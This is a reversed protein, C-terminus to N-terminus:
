DTSNHAGTTHTGQRRPRSRPAATFVNDCGDTAM